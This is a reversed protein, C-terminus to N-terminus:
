WRSDAYFEPDHWDLGNPNLNARNYDDLVGRSVGPPKDEKRGRWYFPGEYENRDLYWYHPLPHKTYNAQFGASSPLNWRGYTGGGRAAQEYPDTLGSHLNTNPRRSANSWRAHEPVSRHDPLNNWREIESYPEMDRVGGNPGITYAHDLPYYSVTGYSDANLDLMGFPQYRQPTAGFVGTPFLGDENRMEYAQIHNPDYGRDTNAPYFWDGFFHCISRVQRKGRRTSSLVTTSTTAAVTDDCHRTPANGTWPSEETANARPTYAAM